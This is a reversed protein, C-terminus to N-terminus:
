KYLKTSQYIVLLKFHVHLSLQIATMRIRAVSCVRLLNFKSEQINTKAWNSNLYPLLILIVTRSKVGKFFCFLAARISRNKYSEKLYSIAKWTGSPVTLVICRWLGHHNEMYGNLFILWLTVYSVILDVVAIYPSHVYTLPM